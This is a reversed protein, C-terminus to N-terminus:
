RPGNAPRSSGRRRCPGPTPSSPTRGARGAAPSRGLGLRGMLRVRRRDRHGWIRTPAHVARAVTAPRGMRRGTWATVVKTTVLESSLPGPDSRCAIRSALAAMPGSMMEKEMPPEGGGGITRSVASGATVSGTTTSPVVCGPKEPVGSTAMPCSVDTVGKLPKVMRASSEVTRPRAMPPPRNLPMTTVALPTVTSPLWMPTSRILRRRGVSCGDSDEHHATRPGDDGAVHHRAVRFAADLEEARPGDDHGVLDPGVAGPRRGNRIALEADPQLDPVPFRTPPVTGASLFM